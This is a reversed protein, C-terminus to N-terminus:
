HLSDILDATVGNTWGFGIQPAYEGGAGVSGNEIDYKEFLLGTSRYAADVTAVWRRAIEEALDHLGFRRLGAVAIWQLPAWGNPCDWQQGSNM